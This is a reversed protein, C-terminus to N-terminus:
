PKKIKKKKDGIRVFDRHTIAYSSNFEPMPFTGIM